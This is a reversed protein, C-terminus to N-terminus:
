LPHAKLWPLSHRRRWCWLAVISFDFVFNFTQGITLFWILWEPM